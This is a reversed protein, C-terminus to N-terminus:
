DPNFNAPRTLSSFLIRIIGLKISIQLSNGNYKYLQTLASTMLTSAIIHVHIPMFPAYSV